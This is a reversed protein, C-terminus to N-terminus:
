ARRLGRLVMWALRARASEFHGTSAQRHLEDLPVGAMQVAHEYAIQADDATAEVTEVRLLQAVPPPTM